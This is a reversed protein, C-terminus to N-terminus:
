LPQQLNALDSILTALKNMIVELNISNLVGLGTGLVSTLDRRTRRTSLTRKQLWTTWGEYSAKLFPSCAPQIDLVNDQMLLEVRKLSWAPNLLMQQQGTNRIVYPGIGFTKPSLVVTPQTTPIVVDIKLEGWYKTNNKGCM